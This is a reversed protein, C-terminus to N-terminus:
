FRLTLFDQPDTYDALWGFRFLQVTKQAEERLITAWPTQDLSVNLGFAQNWSSQYFEALAKATTSSLNFSIKIPPVPAGNLTAKYATWHQQALTLNNALRAGDPVTLNPNYGPMGQPVIHWSGTAVGSLVNTAVQTRNIAQCFALRADKNNFPKINYNMSFGQFLLFPTQQFGSNPDAKAAAIQQAPRQGQDM